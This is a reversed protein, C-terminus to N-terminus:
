RININYLHVIMQYVDIAYVVVLFFMAVEFLTSAFKNQRSLFKYFATAGRIFLFIFALIGPYIYKANITSFDRYRLALVITSLVYGIAVIDFLGYYRQVLLDHSKSIIGKILDIWGLVMGLILIATPLLALIFISRTIEFDPTTHWSDPSNYFHVSNATGYIDAWFSTRFPPYNTAGLTLRPSELLDIFKFTFFGDQISIIGPRRVYTKEFFSPFPEPPVNLTVPVGYKQINVWYQSLPNLLTLIPVVLMFILAVLVGYLRKDTIPKIFLIVFIALATSWTNTKTALSVSVFFGSVILWGIKSDQFFELCFYVAVSSFLITFIDNGTMGSTAMLAPNFALLTFPLLGARESNANLRKILIYALIVVAEGAAFNMLQLALTISGKHSLNIKAAEVTEAAFFYYLKPQFCEECEGTLPLRKQMLIIDIVDNPDRDVIALGLRLASSILFVLLLLLNFVRGQKM